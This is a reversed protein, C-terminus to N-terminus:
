EAEQSENSAEDPGREQPGLLSHLLFQRSTSPQTGSYCCGERDPHKSGRTDAPKSCMTLKALSGPSASQQFPDSVRESDRSGMPRNNASELQNSLSVVEWGGSKVATSDTATLFGATYPSCDYSKCM